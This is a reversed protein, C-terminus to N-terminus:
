NHQLFLFNNVTDDCLFIYGNLKHKCLNNVLALLEKIKNEYFDLAPFSHVEKPAKTCCIAVSSAHM